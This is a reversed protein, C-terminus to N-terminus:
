SEPLRFPLYLRLSSREKVCLCILALLEQLVASNKPLLFHLALGFFHSVVSLVVSGALTLHWHICPHPVVHEAPVWLFSHENQQTSLDPEFAGGLGELGEEAQGQQGSHDSQDGGHHEVGGEGWFSVM